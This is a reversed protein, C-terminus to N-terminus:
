SRCRSKGVTSRLRPTKTPRSTSGVYGGALNEVLTDYGYALDRAYWQGGFDGTDLDPVIAPSVTESAKVGEPSSDPWLWLKGQAVKLPLVTACARQVRM